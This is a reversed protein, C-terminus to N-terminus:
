NGNKRKKDLNGGKGLLKDKRSYIKEGKGNNYLSKIV